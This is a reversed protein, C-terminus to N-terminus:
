SSLPSSDPRDSRPSGGTSQDTALRGVLAKQENHLHQWSAQQEHLWQQTQAEEPAGPWWVVGEPLGHLHHRTAWYYRQWDLPWPPNWWTDLATLQRGLRTPQTATRQRHRVQNLWKGLAFGDHSTLQSVALHGHSAAYDHTAELGHMVSRRRAPWAHFRDIEAPTLGLQALLQQQEAALQSYEAIQRRLWRELWRPLGALNDGGSVPGHALAHARARHWARQWSIPWPPNWWVDLEALVRVYEPPLGASAARLNALWRGLDFGDQPADAHPVALHGHRAVYRRAHGLGDQFREESVAKLGAGQGVRRPLWLEARWGTSGAHLRFALPPPLWSVCGRGWKRLSIPRRCGGCRM